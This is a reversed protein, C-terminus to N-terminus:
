NGGNFPNQNVENGIVTSQTPNISNQNFYKSSPTNFSATIPDVIEAEQSRNHPSVFLKNSLVFSAVASIFAVVIIVAIDKQKM